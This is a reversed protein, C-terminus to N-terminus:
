QEEASDSEVGQPLRGEASIGFAVPNRHRTQMGLGQMEALLALARGSQGGKECAFIAASYSVADAAVKTRYKEYPCLPNECVAYRYVPVHDERVQIEWM